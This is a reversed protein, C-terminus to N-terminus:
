RLNLEDPDLQRVTRAPIGAVVTYPPVDETVVAGAAVVSCRGIRVGALITAGAGIFAGEEVHVGAVQLPYAKLRLPSYGVDHHTLIQANLAVTSQDELVISDVLDLTVGPGIHCRNGIILKGAMHYTGNLQLRGHFDIETGIQTGYARLIQLTLWPPCHAVAHEFAAM